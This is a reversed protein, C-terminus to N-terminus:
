WLIATSLLSEFDDVSLLPFKDKLSDKVAKLLITEDACKELVLSYRKISDWKLHPLEEPDHSHWFRFLAYGKKSEEVMYSYHM